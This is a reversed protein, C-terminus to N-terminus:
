TTGRHPEKIRMKSIPVCLPQIVMYAVWYSCCSASYCTSSQEHRHCKMEERHAGMDYLSKVESEERHLLTGVSSVRPLHQLPLSWQHERPVCPWVHCTLTTSHGETRDLLM